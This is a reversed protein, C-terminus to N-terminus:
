PLAIVTTGITAWEFLFIADATVQRVCGGSRRTGLQDPTQMPTGDSYLPIDHFGYSWEEGRAFRVMYDMTIGDHPAYAHLSKSFVAYTGAKPIGRRGSVLHTKVLEGSDAILWVRQMTNSYIIRRGEGEDPYPLPPLAPPATRTQAVYEASETITVVFEGRDFEGAARATDWRQAESWYPRRGLVRIYIADVLEADTPLGFRDVFTTTAMLVGALYDLQLGNHYRAMWDDLEAASPPAGILACSLRVLSDSISRDPAVGGQSAGAAESPRASGSISSAVAHGSIVGSAVHRQWFVVDSAAALPDVAGSAGLGTSDRDAGPVVGEAPEPRTPAVSLVATAASGDGCIPAVAAGAPPAFTVFLSVAVLSSWAASRPNPFSMMRLRVPHVTAGRQVLLPAHPPCKASTM